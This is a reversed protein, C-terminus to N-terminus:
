EDDGYIDERTLDGYVTGKRVAFRIPQKISDKQRTKLQKRLHEVQEAIARAMPEPLDRVDISEM